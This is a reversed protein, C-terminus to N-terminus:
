YTNKVSTECLALNLALAGRIMSVPVRGKRELNLGLIKFINRKRILSTKHMNITVFKLNRTDFRGLVDCVHM